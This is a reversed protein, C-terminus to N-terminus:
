DYRVKKNKLYDLLPNSSCINDILLNSYSERKMIPKGLKAGCELCRNKGRRYKRYSFSIPHRKKDCYEGINRWPKGMLTRTCLKSFTKKM